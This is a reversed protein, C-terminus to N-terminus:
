SLLDDVEEEEEPWEIEACIAAHYEGESEAIEFAVEVGRRKLRRAITNVLNVAQELVDDIENRNPM